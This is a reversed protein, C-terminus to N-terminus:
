AHDLRQRPLSVIPVDIEPLGKCLDHVEDGLADSSTRSDIRSLTNSKIAFVSKWFVSVGTFSRWNAALMPSSNANPRRSETIWRRLCFVHSISLVANFTCVTAAHHAHFRPLAPRPCWPHGLPTNFFFVPHVCAAAADDLSRKRLNVQTASLQMSESKITKWWPELLRNNADLEERLRHRHM